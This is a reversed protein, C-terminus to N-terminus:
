FNTSVRKQTPQTFLALLFAPSSWSPPFYSADPKVRSDITIGAPASCMSCILSKECLPPRADKSDHGAAPRGSCRSPSAARGKEHPRDVSGVPGDVVRESTPSLSRAHGKRCPRVASSRLVGYFAFKASYGKWASRHM